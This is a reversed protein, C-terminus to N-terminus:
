GFLVKLEDVRRGKEEEERGGITVRCLVNKKEQIRLMQEEVTNRIIYRKVHVPRTQGLRHVRDITQHEVPANWWPELVIVFSARVLNLGVGASRVSALLVGVSEVEDFKKLVRERDRQALSGDLRVFELGADTLVTECLDLMSTFQSFVVTKISADRTRTEQIDQILTVLKTSQHFHKRLRIPTSSCEINEKDQEACSRTTKSITTPARVIDLLDEERFEQRCIPCEGKEGNQERRQLYGVICDWCSVHLCPFLTPQTMLDFCIPCSQDDDDQGDSGTQTLKQIVNTVYADGDGGEQFRKILESVEPEESSGKMALSPHLCCQRLRTLMQFVHAWHSLVTGSAVFASFQTKSRSWLATYIDREEQTFDLYATEVTKPPLSVLPKGEPGWPTSKQRRLVLPELISQVVNLAKPDHNAFPITIFQRWYSINAWPDIRLFNILSYLDELKNQIPTGTVAWRRRGEVESCSRAMGTTRNKIFHAEDLVIRYWEVGYVLGSKKGAGWERTVVGYTTIIVDPARKADTLDAVTLFRDTGYYVACTLARPAFKNTIEDRWQALLSVPCIILTSPSKPLATSAPSSFLKHLSPAPNFDRSNPHNTHILSLTELTKGLGMEDALIGGRTRDAASPFETTLEGTYPNFYFKEEGEIDTEVKPFTYEEWLPHISHASTDTTLNEKAMMWSLAQKQYGRLEINLGPRPEVEEVNEFERAKEYLVEVQDEELDKEDEEGETAEDVPKDSSSPRLGLHKFLALLAAKRDKVDQDTTPQAQSVATQTLYIRIQLIIDCMLTLTPPSSVITGQVQVIGLEVLRGLWRADEMRMKGFEKGRVSLRTIPGVSGVHVDSKSSITFARKPRGRGRAGLGSRKPVSITKNSNLLDMEDGDRLHNPGKLTSYAVLITEGVFRPVGITGNNRRKFLGNGTDGTELDSKRKVGAALTDYKAPSEFYLNVAQGVNGKAEALLIRLSIHPLTDGLIVRLSALDGTLPEQTDATPIAHM